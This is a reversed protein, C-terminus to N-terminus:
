EPPFRLTWRNGEFSWIEENRHKDVIEAYRAADLGLYELCADLHTAPPEADYKRAAELAEARTMRGRYILRSADRSARGFGFKVFQM